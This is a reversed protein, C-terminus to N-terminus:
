YPLTLWKEGDADKELHDHVDCPRALAPFIGSALLQEAAKLATDNGEEKADRLVANVHLRQHETLAM